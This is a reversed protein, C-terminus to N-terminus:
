TKTLIDQGAKQVVKIIEIGGFVMIAGALLIVTQTKIDARTDASSFMYRLGAFVVAGVALFQFVVGATGGITDMMKTIGSDAQGATLNTVNNTGEKGFMDGSFDVVLNLVDTLCFVVVLGLVVPFLKKKIDAKTDAATMMYKVGTAVLGIVALIKVVYAVNSWIDGTMSAVDNKGVAQIIIKSFVDYIGKASYFFVVGFLMNMASEKVSAKEQVGSWIYKIGLFAAACFIVLNGITFIADIFEKLISDVDSKGLIGDGNGSLSNGAFNNAQQLLNTISFGSVSATNLCIIIVTIVSLINIAISLKKKKM